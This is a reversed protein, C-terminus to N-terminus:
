SISQKRPFTVTFAAGHPARNNFTLSGRHAAMIHQVLALGLGVGNSRGSFFVEYIRDRKSNDVGPGEDLVHVKVADATPEICIEVVSAPPSVQIANRLLNWLVQRFQAPDVEAKADGPAHLVLKPVEREHGGKAVMDRVDQALATLDCSSIVPNRPKGFVLMDTLLQNLRAVEARIINLLRQDELALGDSDLVLQVAGSISSLPNKIEHALSASLRGLLAMRENQQAVARLGKVETLDRFVVVQGQTQGDITVLPTRTFGADFTKGDERIAQGELQTEKPPSAESTAEPLFLSLPKGAVSAENVQLLAMAAPNASLITGNIDTTLVGSSLSRVIDENLRALQEARAAVRELAGGAQNLRTALNSSLLAVAVLGVINQGLAILHEGEPLHWDLRTLAANARLWSSLVCSAIALLAALHAEKAGMCIAAMLVSLGFLFTFTSLIGGTALVLVSVLMLDYGLQWRALGKLNERRPILYTLVCSFAITSGLIILLLHSYLPAHRPTRQELVLESGLLLVTVSLRGIIVAYM